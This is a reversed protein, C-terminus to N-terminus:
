PSRRSRASRAVQLPRSSPASKTSTLGSCAASGSGGTLGDGYRGILRRWRLGSYRRISSTGSYAPSPGASRALISARAAGSRAALVVAASTSRSATQVALRAASSIMRATGSLGARRASNSANRARSGSATPSQAAQHAIASRCPGSQRDHGSASASGREASTAASRRLSASRTSNWAQSCHSAASCAAAACAAARRAPILMPTMASRATPACGPPASAQALCSTITGPMLTPAGGSSNLWRPWSQVSGGHCGPHSTACAPRGSASSIAAVVRWAPPMRTSWTM